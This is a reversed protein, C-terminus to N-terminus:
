IEFGAGHGRSHLRLRSIQAADKAGHRCSAKPFEEGNTSAFSSFITGAYDSEGGLLPFPNRPNDVNTRTM